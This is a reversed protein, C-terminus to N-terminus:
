RQAVGDRLATFLSWCGADQAASVIAAMRIRARERDPLESAAVYLAYLRHALDSCSDVRTLSAERALMDLTSM